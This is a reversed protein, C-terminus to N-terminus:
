CSTCCRAKRGCTRHSAAPHRPGQQPLLGAPLRGPPRAHADAAVRRPAPRPLRQRYRRRGSPPGVGSGVHGLRLRRRAPVGLLRLLAHRVRQQGLVLRGRRVLRRFERPRLRALAGPGRPVPAASRRRVARLAAAGLGGQRRAAAAGRDCQRLRPRPPGRGANGAMRVPPATADRDAGHPPLALLLETTLAMGERLLYRGDQLWRYLRQWAEEDGPLEEGSLEPLLELRVADGSVAVGKPYSQWFHRIGAALTHGTASSVRLYGSTRGDRRRRGAPTVIDHALDHEHRLSWSHNDPVELQEGALEVAAAAFPLELVCSRVGLLAQEEDVGPEFVPDADPDACLVVLRHDIKVFPQEAYVHIRLESRLRAHGAADRNVADCRVTARLPGAHEVSASTAAADLSTGDALEVRLARNLPGGALPPGGAAPELLIWDEARPQVSVRLMRGAVLVAGGDRREVSLAGDPPSAEAASLLVRCDARAGPQLSPPVAADVLVWRASGDPWLSHIRAQAASADDPGDGWVLRADGASFLAGRSVPLGFTLPLGALSAAAGTDCLEVEAEIPSVANPFRPKPRSTSFECVSEATDGDQETATLRATWTRDLPLGALPIAHLTSPGDPASEAVTAGTDDRVSVAVRSPPFTLCHVTVAAADGAADVEVHLREIAPAFASPEPAEALLVFREIRCEGRGDSAFQIWKVRDDFLIPRDIVILHRRNDHRRPEIRGM